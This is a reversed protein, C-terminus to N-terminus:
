LMKEWKINGAFNVMKSNINNSGEKFGLKKYFDKETRTM